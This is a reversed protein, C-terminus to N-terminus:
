TLPQGQKRETYDDTHAVQDGGEQKLPSLRVCLWRCVYLNESLKVNETEGKVGADLVPCAGEAVTAGLVEAVRRLM